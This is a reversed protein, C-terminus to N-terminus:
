GEASPTPAGAGKAPANPEREANSGEGPSASGGSPAAGPKANSGSARGDPGDAGDSGHPGAAGAAAILVEFQGMARDIHGKFIMYPFLTILAIILGAATTLLAQAIGSSVERPDTVMRTEGLLEFSEIIGIVTGLIGILPAATIITSLTPMFREFRSRLDEVVEIAVAEPGHAEARMQRVLEGFISRDRRLLQDVIGADGARLGAALTALRDRPMARRMRRWFWMRELCLAVSIVSLFILPFMVWGGREILVALTDWVQEM